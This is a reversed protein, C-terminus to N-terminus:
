MQVAIIEEYVIILQLPSNYSRSGNTVILKFCWSSLDNCNLILPGIEMMNFRAPKLIGCLSQNYLRLACPAQPLDLTSIQPGNGGFILQLHCVWPWYLPLNDPYIYHCCQLDICYVVKLAGGGWVSGARTAIDGENCGNDWVSWM